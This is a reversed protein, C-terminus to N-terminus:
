DVFNINYKTKLIKRHHLWHGVIIHGLSLVSIMEGNETQGTRSMWEVDFGKFLLLTSNRMHIFEQALLQIDYQKESETAYQNEEFSRILNPDKRVISLSRYAFILETDICHRILTNISWKDPAYAFSGDIGSIIKLDDELKQVSASLVSVIEGPEVQQVYRNFFAPHRIASTSPYM